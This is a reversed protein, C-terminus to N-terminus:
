LGLARLLPVAVEAGVRHLGAGLVPALDRVLGLVREAERPPPGDVLVYVGAAGEIAAPLERESPSLGSAGLRVLPAGLAAAVPEHERALVIPRDPLEDLSGAGADPWPLAITPADGIRMVAAAFARGCAHCEYGPSLAVATLGGCDPCRARLRSV